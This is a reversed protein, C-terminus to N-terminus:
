MLPRVLDAPLKLDLRHSPMWVVVQGDEDERKVKAQGGPTDVVRSANGPDPAHAVTHKSGGEVFMRRAEGDSAEDMAQRVCEDFRRHQDETWRSVVTEEQTQRSELRWGEALLDFVLHRPWNDREGGEGLLCASEGVYFVVGAQDVTVIQKIKEPFM